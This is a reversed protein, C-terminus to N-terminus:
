NLAEILANVNYQMLQLYRETGESGGLPDILAIGLGLDEAFAIIPDVSLQPEVFLVSVDYEEVKQQLEELYRPSPNTGAQPEFSGVVHLNFEEAFYAWADHLSIVNPNVLNATADQLEEKLSELESIYAEARAQYGGANEEDLASLQEAITQTITQANELSLWYHPDTPGHSHGHHGDHEDEDHGHDNHGHEHADKTEIIDIGADVTVVPAGVSEALDSAWTDLGHGIAFILQSDELDRVLRPQPDFTHPSAGSPLMLVVEADDGAVERTIDYIPFITAVVTVDSDVTNTEVENGQNRATIGLVVAIIIILLLISKKM